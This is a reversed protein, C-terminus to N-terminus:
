SPDGGLMENLVMAIWPADAGNDDVVPGWEKEAAVADVPWTTSGLPHAWLRLLLAGASQRRGPKLNWVGSGLRKGDELLAWGCKQGPDIGLILM